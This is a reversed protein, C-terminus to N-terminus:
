TMKLQFPLRFYRRSQLSSLPYAIPLYRWPGIILIADDVDSGMWQGIEWRDVVVPQGSLQQAAAFPAMAERGTGM